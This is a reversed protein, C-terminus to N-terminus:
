EDIRDPSPLPDVNSIGKAMKFALIWAAFSSSPLRYQGKHGSRSLISGRKKLAMLANDVTHKKLKSENLIKKREVYEPFHQAMVQLVTRYDDSRVEETYM